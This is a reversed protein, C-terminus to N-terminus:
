ENSFIFKISNFLLKLEAFPNKIAYLLRYNLYHKIFYSSFYYKKYLQKQSRKLKIEPVRSFNNYPVNYHSYFNVSSYSKKSYILDPYHTFFAVQIIDPKIKFILNLTKIIENETETPNGIMFYGVTNFGLKKLTNFAKNIQKIKIDKKLIKLIRDSGSEIGFCLTNCGAKRMKILLEKDIHDVRAQAAWKINIKRKIIEDCIEIIRKKSLTFIDDIFYIANVKFNDILYEIENAVNFASRERFKKGQSVRYISSCFICKYPCGRSSLIFGWKVKKNFDIPYYIEYNCTAFWEHKPFPLYDLNQILERTKTKIIEKKNKDFFAIGRTKEFRKNKIILDILVYEAEGIICADIPSGDYLFNKPLLTPYQGICFITSLFNKKYIDAIQFIESNITTKIIVYDTRGIKEVIEEPSIKKVNMDIFSTKCGFKDLLSACYGIDLPPQINMPHNSSDTHSLNIFLVKKM